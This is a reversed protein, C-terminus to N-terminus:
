DDVVKYGDKKMEELLEDEMDSFSKEAQELSDYRGLHSMIGLQLMANALSKNGIAEEGKERAKDLQSKIASMNFFKSKFPKSLFANEAVGKGLLKKFVSYSDFMALCSKYENDEKEKYRENSIDVIFFELASTLGETEEQKTITIVTGEEPNKDAASRAYKWMTQIHLWCSSQQALASQTRWLVRANWKKPIRRCHVLRIM